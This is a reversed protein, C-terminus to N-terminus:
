GGISWSAPDPDTDSIDSEDASHLREDSSQVPGWRKSGNPDSASADQLEALEQEYLGGKSGRKPDLRCATIMVYHRLTVPITPHRENDCPYPQNAPLCTLLSAAHCASLCASLRAPLCAHRCAREFLAKADERKDHALYCTRVVNHAFMGLLCERSSDM